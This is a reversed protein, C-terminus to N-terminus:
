ATGGATSRPLLTYHPSGEDCCPPDALTIPVHLPALIPVPLQIGTAAGDRPAETRTALTPAAALALHANQPGNSHTDLATIPPAIANGTPAGHNKGTAQPGVSPILGRAAFPGRLSQVMTDRVSHFQVVIAAEPFFMSYCRPSDGLAEYRGLAEFGAFEVVTKAESASYWFRDSMGTMHCACLVNM